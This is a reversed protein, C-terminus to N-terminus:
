KILMKIRSEVVPLFSFFDIASLIILCLATWFLIKIRKHHKDIFAVAFYAGFLVLFPYIQFRYRSQVVTPILVLPSTLSLLILYYFLPRKQLGALVMGSFGCIFTITIAVASSIIFIIQALGTQYFWFGMPRILSFFRIIRVLCLKAFIWPYILVFSWFEHNAQQKLSFFGHVDTYSTLPNYGGAFQGGNASLTNGVWLNYEGILTTLIFQHYVFYNRIVWPLLTLALLSLFIIGLKYKKRLLFYVLFIPVFLIVPPRSLIALGTALSLYVTYRWKKQEQYLKVFLWVTLTVLFLYLTETMLMASIELLDPHLGFFVAALLGAEKREFVKWAILFLLWATLVHLFAQIIWVAEYYHGFVKYIGALFFEYAPGARVISLDFGFSKTKDERFGYGDLINIAISDYAQADVVPQIRYHFSYFISAAFSFFVILIILRSSKMKQLFNEKITM